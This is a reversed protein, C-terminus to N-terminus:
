QDHIDARRKYVHYYPRLDGGFGLKFWGRRPSNIGEMDVEAIRLRRAMDKFAEWHAFTGQWPESVDPHGAGFLYYARRSDWGYAVLYVVDRDQNLVEYVAGRNATVLGDMLHEMRALKEEPPKEGQRLMLARYYDTLSASSTALRVEARKKVAERIHRQRLTEMARFVSSEEPMGGGALDSVDIYSTYRLDLAFRTAPDPNHYNHWSFPRLDEFQPPLALELTDFQATLKEISFETLAFQEFRQRVLKKQPDPLFLLGNHIVLDDLMCSNEAPGKVVCVGAKTHSGQRVLYLAYAVGALDLFFRECFLNGQPSRAVLADWEAPDPDTQWRFKEDLM